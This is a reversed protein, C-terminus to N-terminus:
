SNCSLSSLLDGERGLQWFARVLFIVNSQRRWCLTSSFRITPHGYWARTRWLVGAEKPDPFVLVSLLVYIKHYISSRRFLTMAQMSVQVERDILTRVGRLKTFRQRAANTATERRLNMSEQVHFYRLCFNCTKWLVIMYIVCGVVKWFLCSHLRLLTNWFKYDVAFWSLWQINYWPTFNDMGCRVSAAWATHQLNTQGRVFLVPPDSTSMVALDMSFTFIIQFWTRYQSCDEPYRIRCLGNLVLYVRDNQNPRGKQDNDFHTKNPEAIPEFTLHGATLINALMRGSM